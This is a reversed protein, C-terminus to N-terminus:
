LMEDYKNLFYIRREIKNPSLHKSKCISVYRRKFYKRQVKTEVKIVISGTHAYLTFSLPSDENLAFAKYSEIFLRIICAKHM